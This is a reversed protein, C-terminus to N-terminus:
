LVASSAKANIDNSLLKNADIESGSSSELKLTIAKGKIIISSGSSSECVARDSEISVDIESGSSSKVSIDDGKLINSSTLSAGSSTQINEIKGMRVIVKKSKVNYYSSYDSTIILVGNDVKTKIHKQLNDDAVVTVSKEKSQILEVELGKNADVSTFDGGINRTETTVNGSGKIGKFQCSAFILSIAATIILKTLLVIFKIM